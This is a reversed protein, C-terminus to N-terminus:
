IFYIYTVRCERCTVLTAYDIIIIIMIIIIVIIIIIIIIIIIMIIIITIIVGGPFDNGKTSVRAIFIRPLPLLPPPVGENTEVHCVEGV